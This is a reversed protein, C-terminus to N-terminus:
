IGQGEKMKGEFTREGGGEAPFDPPLILARVQCTPLPGRAQPHTM